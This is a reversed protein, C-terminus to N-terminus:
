SKMRQVFDDVHITTGYYSDGSGYKLKEGM